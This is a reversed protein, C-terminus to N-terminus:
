ATTARATCTSRDTISRRRSRAAFSGDAVRAPLPLHADRRRQRLAVGRGGLVAAGRRDEHEHPQVTGQVLRLRHRPQHPEPHDPGDRMGTRHAVGPGPRRRAPAVARHAHHQGAARRLRPVSVPQGAGGPLDRRDAPQGAHELQPRRRALRERRRREVPDHLGLKEPQDVHRSPRRAAGARQPIDERRRHEQVLGRRRRLRRRCQEPRGRAHTTSRGRGSTRGLRQHAGVDRGRGRLSLAGGGPKAEILAYIRNPM